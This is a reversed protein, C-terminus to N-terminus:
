LRIQCVEVNLYFNFFPCTKHVLTATFLHLTVPSHGGGMPTVMWNLEAELELEGEEGGWEGV